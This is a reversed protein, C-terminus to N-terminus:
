CSAIPLTSFNLLIHMITNSQIENGNGTYLTDTNLLVKISFQRILKNGAMAQSFPAFPFPLQLLQTLKSSFNTIQKYSKVINKLAHSIFSYKQKHFGIYMYFNDTRKLSVSIRLVYQSQLNEERGKQVFNLITFTM